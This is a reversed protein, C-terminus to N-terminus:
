HTIPHAPQFIQIYLLVSGGRQIKPWGVCMCYMYVCLGSIHPCMYKSHTNQLFLGEDHVTFVSILSIMQKYPNIKCCSSLKKHVMQIRTYITIFANVPIM